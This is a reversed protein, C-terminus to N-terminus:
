QIFYVIDIIRNKEDIHHLLFSANVEMQVPSLLCGSAHNKSYFIIEHHAAHQHVRVAAHRHCDAAFRIVAVWQIVADPIQTGSFVQQIM